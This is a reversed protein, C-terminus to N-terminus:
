APHHPPPGGRGRREVGEGPRSLVPSLLRLLDEVEEDLNRGADTRYVIDAARRSLPEAAPGTPARAGGAPVGRWGPERVLDHFGRGLERDMERDLDLFPRGLRAALREGLTTKGSGIM